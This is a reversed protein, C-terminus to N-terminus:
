WSSWVAKDSNPTPMFTKKSKRATVFDGFIMRGHEARIVLLDSVSIMDDSAFKKTMCLYTECRGQSEVRENESDEGVAGGDGYDRCPRASVKARSSAICAVHEHCAEELVVKDPKNSTIEETVVDKVDTIWGDFADDEAGEDDVGRGEDVHGDPDVEESRLM